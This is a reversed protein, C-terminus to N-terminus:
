LRTPGPGKRNKRAPPRKRHRLLHHLAHRIAPTQTDAWALLLRLALVSLAGGAGMGLADSWDLAPDGAPNAAPPAQQIVVVTPTAPAMGTQRRKSEPPRALASRELSDLPHPHFEHRATLVRVTDGAPTRYLWYRVGGHGSCAGISRATSASEDMCVCGIRAAGAPVSVRKGPGRRRGVPQEGPLESSRFYDEVALQENAEIDPDQAWLGPAPLLLLYFLISTLRM